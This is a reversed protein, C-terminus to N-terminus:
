NEEMLKYIGEIAGKPNDLNRKMVEAIQSTSVNNMKFEDEGIPGLDTTQGEYFYSFMGRVTSKSPYGLEEILDMRGARTLAPDLIDFRNTTMVTILGHPTAVGDLTNLLSGMSISGQDASDRDHTIKITDIDELLLMSCPGVEALLGLLSTEAKLDALSIYWLDLNFENALAKVLSTKGTGPPGYFMYGRHWPIALRNYKEEAKLFGSLDDMIRQKQEPPLSVSEMTRPPLDSRTRWSGWQNMMKLVAKRSTARAQNLQELKRIVAIQAEHSFVRFSIEKDKDYRQPYTDSKNSVDPTYLTIEVKHGEILVKRNISDNFRTKLPPIKEIVGPAAEGVEGDIEYHRNRRVGSTVMLARHKENPTVSLLWDHVEQYIAEKESISVIYAFKRRYWEMGVNYFKHVTEAVLLATEVKDDAKILRARTPTPRAVLTRQKVM